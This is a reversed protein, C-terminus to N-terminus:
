AVNRRHRADSSPLAQGVRLRFSRVIFRNTNYTTCIGILLLEAVPTKGTEIDSLSNGKLGLPAAFDTQNMKLHKRLQKINNAIINDMM